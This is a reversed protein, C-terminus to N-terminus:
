QVCILFRFAKSGYSRQTALVLSIFVANGPITATSQKIVAAAIYFFGQFVKLTIVQCFLRAFSICPLFLTCEATSIIGVMRHLSIKESVVIYM